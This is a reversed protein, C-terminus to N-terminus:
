ASRSQPTGCRRCFRASASLSLGCGACNQIGVNAAADAVERASAEWFSVGQAVARAAIEGQPVATGRSRYPTIAPPEPLVPGQGPDGLGLGELQARRAAVDPSDDQAALQEIPPQAAPRRQPFRLITDGVPAITHRTVPEPEPEVEAAAAIPEPEPEVEAAVPEPEPEPAIAAVPQLEVEAAVAPEPEPEPEAAAVVPEPEIEAAVPEPEAAAVAPEPEPEPEAAAAVPEPEVDAAVPELEPEIEAAVPEPEAAAVAPEPEPEPEAAAAVPEPEVEVEYAADEDWALVRLPPRAPEAPEALETSEAAVPEQSEDVNAMVPEAPLAVLPEPAAEIAAAWPLETRPDVVSPAEAVAPVDDDEIRPSEYVFGDDGLVGEIAAAAEAPAASAALPEGAAVLPEASPWPALPEAPAGASTESPLDTTPWAELGLRAALDGEALFPDSAPAAPADSLTAALLDAADDAVPMCTRCRGADDNWCNVCTYQRCDICFNFSEHFADLQASALAGQETRMADGIAESLTDQGTLYTKLGGVLGRTKRLPSLRTPARFEYRTGCRECFSETLTEAL